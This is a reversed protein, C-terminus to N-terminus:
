GFFHRALLAASIGIVMYWVATYGVGLALLAPANKKTMAPYMAADQQRRDASRKEAGWMVRLFFWRFSVRLDGITSPRQTADLAFVREVEARQEASLSQAIAPDFTSWFRTAPVGVM